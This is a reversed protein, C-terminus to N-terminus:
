GGVKISHVAGNKLTVYLFHDNRKDWKASLVPYSFYEFALIKDKKDKISFVLVPYFKKGDMTHEGMIEYRFKRESSVLLFVM